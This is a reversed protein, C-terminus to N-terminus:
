RPPPRRRGPKLSQGQKPRPQQNPRLQQNPRMQELRRRMREQLAQYQARQLPTLFGGLAKQEDQQLDIRQRQLDALHDLYGSIRAQDAKGSDAMADALARRTQTEERTLAQRRPQFKRDVEALQSMQADNLGLRQRTVRALAQRVQRQLAARNAPAPQQGARQDGQQGLADNAPPATVRATSDPPTATQASAAAVPAAALCCVAALAVRLSSKRM